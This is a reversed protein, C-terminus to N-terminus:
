TPTVSCSPFTVGMEQLVDMNDGWEKTQMAARESSEDPMMEEGMTQQSYGQMSEPVPRLETFAARAPAM